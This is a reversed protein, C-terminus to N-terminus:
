NVKVKGGDVLESLETPILVIDIESLGASVESYEYNWLGVTIERKISRNGEEIFVYRHPERGFIARTPISLVDKHEEIIIEVDASAGAPLLTAPQLTSTPIDLEIESTRDQERVANIFPIIKRITGNFPTKGVALIKIRASQGLRVKPIDVEDIEARIYRPETDVLRIPAKLNIATIQSLQGVELNLESIIGDFPARVLTKEYAMAASDVAQKASDLESKSIERTQLNLRRKYEQTIRELSSLVDDNEIEALIKGKKATDGLKVNLSKVRGVAGFALEASQEAKVTGANVSTVISEM